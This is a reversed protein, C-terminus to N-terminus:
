CEIYTTEGHMSRALEFEVGGICCHKCTVPSNNPLSFLMSSLSGLVPSVAAM